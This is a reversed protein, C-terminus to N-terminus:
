KLGALNTEINSKNAILQITLFRINEDFQSSFRKKPHGHGSLNDNIM